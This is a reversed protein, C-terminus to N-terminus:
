SGGPGASGAEPVAGAGGHFGAHGAPREGALTAGAGKGCWWLHWLDGPVYCFPAQDWLHFPLCVAARKESAGTARTPTASSPAKGAM